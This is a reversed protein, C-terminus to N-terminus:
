YVEFGDFYIEDDWELPTCAIADYDSKISTLMSDYTDVLADSVGVDDHIMFIGYIQREFDIWPFFGFTGLSHILPAQEIPRDNYLWSGLSYRIPTAIGPPAFAVPLIGVNDQWLSRITSASLSRQGNGRGENTLMHLVRSYDKLNSRAGGAIRYNQTPGLGQWDITSVGLPAGLEQEWLDQWDGNEVVELIRGAIHMSVDGYSFQGGVTYGSNLPRCCAIQSVAEALTLSLDSVETAGVDDGYGATHSLMQRTTMAGKGGTFEPLYTSVPSDLDVDGREVAQLIRTASLLKSASGVPKVTAESYDGYYSEIFVGQRGGVLFGGGSLGEVQLLENFETRAGPFSCVDAWAMSAPTIVLTLCLICAIRNLRNEPREM